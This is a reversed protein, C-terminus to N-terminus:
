EDEQHHQQQNLILARNKARQQEPTTYQHTTSDNSAHETQTAQEQQAAEALNAQKEARQHILLERQINTQIVKDSAGSPGTIGPSYLSRPLLQRTSPSANAVADLCIQPVAVEPAEAFDYPITCIELGWGTLTNGNTGDMRSDRVLLRWPGKSREGGFTALFEKPQYTASDTPPCPLTDYPNSSADDFSINFNDETNCINELLKVETGQPSMLSVIVDNIWDHTGSLAVVKVSTVAGDHDDPIKLMSDVFARGNDPIERNVDTSTFTKCTPTINAKSLFNATVSTDGAMEIHCPGNGSCAGSWGLFLSETDPIAVLQVKTGNYLTAACTNGCAINQQPQADDTDDTDIKSTVTGNGEGEKTVTLTQEQEFRASAFLATALTLQCTTNTGADACAGGWGVFSSGDDSNPTATLTVIADKDFNASCATGCNIGSIDSTITGKGYGITSVTLPKINSPPMPPSFLLATENKLFAQNYGVLFASGASLQLGVTASGGNLRNDDQKCNELTVDKYNFTISGNEALAVQFTVTDECHTSSVDRWELVLERNPPKGVIGWYVKETQLDDWFPAILLGDEFPLTRNAYVFEPTTPKSSIFGNKNIYLTTYETDLIKFPFGWNIQTMDKDETTVAPTGGLQLDRYTYQTSSVGYAKPGSPLITSMEDEDAGTLRFLLASEDTLTRQDKSVITENGISNQVSVTAKAGGSERQTCYSDQELTVDKYTYLIDSKGEFLVTQFTIGSNRCNNWRNLNRWEIILTRNPSTGQTEWFVDSTTSNEAQLNTDQLPKLVINGNRMFVQGTHDITLAEDQQIQKNGIIFPFPAAINATKKNWYDLGLRTPNDSLERWEYKTVSAGYYVSRTFKVTKTQQNNGNSFTFTYFGPNEPTFAAGYIGDGAIDDYQGGDDTLTIQTNGPNITVVVNGAPEACNINIAQLEIVEDIPFMHTREAGAPKMVGLVRQNKCTLANHANLHRGTITKEKLDPIDDDGGALILNRIQWWTLDNNQAKLLAAVGTAHPTAMSTGNKSHYDGSANGTTYTSLIRVGPAAIDVTGRGFNSFTGLRGDKDIAAVNIVNALLPRSRIRFDNNTGSNGASGVFLIGADMLKQVADIEAQRPPDYGGYSNNSAVINVGHETKLKAIYEDCAITSSNSGSGDHALARCSLISVKQNVGTVGKGNNGTAGIIGAVHTGHAEYTTETMPDGDMQITDYGHCDDVYGNNDDDVGETGDCEATNRWMNASLDEHKYDVGQDVVAVVVDRSGTTIGWAAPMDLGHDGNLNWMDGNAYSTDDPEQEIRVVYDPEAYLISKEQGFRKVADEVPMHAPLQVLELGDVFGDYTKIARTGMRQHLAAREQPSRNSPQFRVLIQGEIYDGNPTHQKQEPTAQQAAVLSFSSGMLLIMAFIIRFWKWLTRQQMHKSPHTM